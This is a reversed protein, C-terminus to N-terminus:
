NANPEGIRKVEWHIDIGLKEKIKQQAYGGLEELESASANGNNILFNCHKNSIQAGGISYGRLGVKDILHWASEKEPNRFTSGTTHETIPQSSERKNSIEQMRTKIEQGQGKETNFIAEIFIMGDDLSNGRYHFGMEETKIVHKKGSSDLAIVSDIIDKFEKGYAGANMAVGGGICGPIGVLFELGSIEQQLCYEALNFNVVSCGVALKGDERQTIYNFSRGLKIVVGKIGGDRIIVNSCLGLITVAIDSPKNQLFYQLDNLDSPKYLIEANGGVKMWSNKALNANERYTGSVKPLRSIISM